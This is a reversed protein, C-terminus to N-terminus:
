LKGVGEESIGRIGGGANKAAGAGGSGGHGERGLQQPQQRTIARLILKISVEIQQHSISALAQGLWRLLLLPLLLLLLLLLQKCWRCSTAM